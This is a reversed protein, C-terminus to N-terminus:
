SIRPDAMRAKGSGHRQPRRRNHIVDLGPGSKEVKVTMSTRERKIEKSRCDFYLRNLVLRNRSSFPPPPVVCRPRPPRCHNCRDDIELSARSTRRTPIASRVRRCRRAAVHERPCRCHTSAVPDILTLLRAGGSPARTVLMEARSVGAAAPSSGGAVAADPSSAAQSRTRCGSFSDLQGPAFYRRRHFVSGDRHRRYGCYMRSGGTCERLVGDALRHPSCSTRDLRSFQPSAQTRPEIPLTTTSRRVVKWCKRRWGTSVDARLASACKASGAAPWAPTRRGERWRQARGCTEAPSFRPGPL